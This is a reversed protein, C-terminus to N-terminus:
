CSWREIRNEEGSARQDAVPGKVVSIKPEATQIVKGKDRVEVNKKEIQGDRFL